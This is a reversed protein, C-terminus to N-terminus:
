KRKAMEAFVALSLALAHEAIRHRAKLQKRAKRKGILRVDGSYQEDAADSLKIGYDWLAQASFPPTIEHLEM